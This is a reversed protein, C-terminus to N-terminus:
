YGKSLRGKYMYALQRAAMLLTEGRSVGGYYAHWNTPDIATNHKYMVSGITVSLGSWSLSYDSPTEAQAQQVYETHVPTAQSFTHLTINNVPDSLMLCAIDYWQESQLDVIFNEVAVCVQRDSVLGNRRLNNIREESGKIGSSFGVPQPAINPQSDKGYVTARGFAKQFAEKVSEVKVPKSSAVVIDIDGGSFLVDKMQPDMATIVTEVGVKAKQMMKNVTENTKLWELLSTLDQPSQLPQATTQGSTPMDLQVLSSNNSHIGGMPAPPSYTPAMTAPSSYPSPIANPDYTPTFINVGAPAPKPVSQNALTHSAAEHSPPSGPLHSHTEYEQLSHPVPQFGTKPPPGAATGISTSIPPFSPLPTLPTVSVPASIPPTYGSLLTPQSPQPSSLSVPPNSLLGSSVATPQSLLNVGAFQSSLSAAPAHLVSSVPTGFNTGSVADTSSSVSSPADTNVADQQM